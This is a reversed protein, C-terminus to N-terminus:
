AKQAATKEAGEPMAEIRKTEAQDEKVDEVKSGTSVHHFHIFNGQIAPPEATMRQDLTTLWEPQYLEFAERHRGKIEERCCDYSGLMYMNSM